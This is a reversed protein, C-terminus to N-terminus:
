TRHAAPLAQHHHVVPGSGALVFSLGSQWANQYFIRITKMSYKHADKGYHSSWLQSQTCIRV